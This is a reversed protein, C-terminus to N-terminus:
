VRGIGSPSIGARLHWCSGCPLGITSTPPKTIQIALTKDADEHHKAELDVDGKDCLLQYFEQGDSFQWREVKGNLQPTGRKDQM